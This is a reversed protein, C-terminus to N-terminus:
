YTKFTKLEVPGLSYILRYPPQKGEELKIVHKNVGIQESLVNTSEESFMDAFDLYEAPVIVKKALLFALQAEKAPYITMRLGVFSVHVVFAEINKDM